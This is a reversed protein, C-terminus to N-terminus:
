ASGGSVVPLRLRLPVPVAVAVGAVLAGPRLAPRRNLVLVSM